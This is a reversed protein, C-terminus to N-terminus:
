THKQSSHFIAYKSKKFNFIVPQRVDTLKATVLMASGNCIILYEKVQSDVVKKSVQQKLRWHKSVTPQADPLARPRYFNLSSTNTHNDTQLSTCITQMHDLQDWQWWFVGDDRAENLDPSTKSKQYRSVCTTKSFLSNFLNLLLLVHQTLRPALPSWTNTCMYGPWLSSKAPLLREWSSEQTKSWTVTLYAHTKNKKICIVTRSVKIYTFILPM